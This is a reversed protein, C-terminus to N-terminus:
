EFKKRKPFTFDTKGWPDAKNYRYKLCSYDVDYKEAVDMLHLYEGHIWVFISDRRNRDQQKRTVWRCNIPEYNGNPDIRDISLPEKYGSKTLGSKSFLLTMGNM